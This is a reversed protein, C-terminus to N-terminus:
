PHFIIHEVHNGHYGHYSRRIWEDYQYSHFPRSPHPRTFFVANVRQAAGGGKTHHPVLPKRLVRNMWFFFFFFSVPLVFAPVVRV